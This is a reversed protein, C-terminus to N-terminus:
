GYKFLLGVWTHVAIYTFFVPHIVREFFDGKVICVSLHTVPIYSVLRLFNNLDGNEMYEFIMLLPDEDMSIGYFTVIHEHQLSTLIEAERDFARRAEEVDYHDKLSKIAVLTLDDGPTLGECMGLHVEGFAGEGLKRVLHIRDRSVQRTGGPPSFFFLCGQFSSFCASQKLSFCSLHASQYATFNIFLSGLSTLFM